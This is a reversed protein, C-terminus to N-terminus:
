RRSYRELMEDHETIITRMQLRARDLEMEADDLDRRHEELEQEFREHEARIQELTVDGHHKEMEEHRLLSARAHEILRRARHITLIHAAELRLHRRQMDADDASIEVDGLIEDQRVHRLDLQQHEVVLDNILESLHDAEEVLTGTDEEFEEDLEARLADRQQPDVGCGLGTGLVFVLGLVWMRDM